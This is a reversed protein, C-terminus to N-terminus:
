SVVILVRNDIIYEPLYVIEESKKKKLFLSHGNMTVKTALIYLKM